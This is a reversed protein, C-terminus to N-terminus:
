KAKNSLTSLTSIWHVHVTYIYNIQTLSYCKQEDTLDKKTNWFNKKFIAFNFNFQKKKEGAEVAVAEAVVATAEERM